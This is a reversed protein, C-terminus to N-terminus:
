LDVTMAEAPLHREPRINGIKNAVVRAQDDFNITALVVSRGGGLRFPRANQFVLAISGASKSCHPATLGRLRAHSSRGPGVPDGGGQGAGMLPAPVRQCDTISYAFKRWSTSTM